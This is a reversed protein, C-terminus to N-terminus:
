SAVPTEAGLLPYDCTVSTLLDLFLDTAPEQRMGHCDGGRGRSGPAPSHTLFPTRLPSSGRTEGRAVPDFSALWGALQLLLYM